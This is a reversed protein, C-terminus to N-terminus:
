SKKNGAKTYKATEIQGLKHQVRKAGNVRSIARDLARPNMSNRRRNPVCKHGKPIFIVGGDPTRRYYSSKNPHTGSPCGGKESKAKGAVSSDIRPAFEGGFGYRGQARTLGRNGGGGGGSGPPPPFNRALPMATPGPLPSGGGGGGTLGRIGGTVASIPNFGSTVFSSVAGKLAGGIASFLGPDGVNGYAPAARASKIAGSM